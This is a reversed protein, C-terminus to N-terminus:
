TKVSVQHSLCAATLLNFIKTSVIINAVVVAGATQDTSVIHDAEPHM